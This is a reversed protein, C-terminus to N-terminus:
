AKWWLMTPASNAKSTELGSPSRRCPVPPGGESWDGRRGCIDGAPICSANSAALLDPIRESGDDVPNGPSHPGRTWFPGGLKQVLPPEVERAERQIMRVGLAADDIPREGYRAQFASWPPM